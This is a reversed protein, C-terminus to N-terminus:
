WRVTVGTFRLQCYHNTKAKLKAVGVSALVMTDGNTTEPVPSVPIVRSLTKAATGLLFEVKTSAGPTKIVGGLKVM